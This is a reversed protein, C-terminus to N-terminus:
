AEAVEIVPISKVSAIVHAVHAITCPENRGKVMADGTWKEKKFSRPLEPAASRHAASAHSARM